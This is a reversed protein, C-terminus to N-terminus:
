ESAGTHSLATNLEDPDAVALTEASRDIRRMLRTLVKGPGLEVVTRAGDALLRQVCQAWRVPQHLQEVLAARLGPLDPHPTADANHIVPIRPPALAAEDLRAALRKAAPRMLACHSPVGVSLPVARRVGAEKALTVARAVADAEGAIVVQGPANYNAPEVVQGEAARACLAEVEADPLGLLAAMAGGGPPAAEQMYRARDAVLSVAASLDLAGACVLASYEGLSHGAVASPAPGGRACWVRWIAVGTALMAPQTRETRDLESAPGERVLRWLDLGLVESAEDFTAEVEPHRAGLEALMGVSQSGQGPFVFALSM